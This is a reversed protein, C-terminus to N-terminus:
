KLTASGTLIPNWKEKIHMPEICYKMAFVATNCCIQVLSFTGLQNVPKSEPGHLKNNIHLVQIYTGNQLVLSSALPEEM